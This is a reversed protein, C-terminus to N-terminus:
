HYRSEFDRLDEEVEDKAKGYSEQLIGILKERNGDIMDMEDDTLRGWKAQIDGKIQSWKGEIIDRNM